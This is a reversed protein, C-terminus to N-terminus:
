ASPAPRLRGSVQLHDHLAAGAAGVVRALQAGHAFTGPVTITGALSSVPFALATPVLVLALSHDLAPPNSSLAIWGRM